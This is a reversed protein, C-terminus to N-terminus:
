FIEAELYVSLSFTLEEDGTKHQASGVLSLGASDFVQLNLSAFLTHSLTTTDPATWERDLAIRYDLRGTWGDPLRHSYSAEAILSVEEPHALRVKAEGSARFRSVPTPVVAYRGSVIGTSALSFEPLFRASVGLRAQVDYGCLRTDNSNLVDEIALLARVGLEDGLVLETDVLQQSLRVVKDENSPGVEGLIQALELLTINGIPALLEGLDLLTNQIETAQALPTVDRFRGQGIGATVDLEYGTDTSADFGVAGVGFLDENFFMSLSGSGVLDAGWAVGDRRVEARGDVAWGSSPSSFLSTYESILTASMSRNRDDAYPGDYWNFSGQVGLDYIRSEPPEYDCASLAGLQAFAPVAALCMLLTCAMIARHM